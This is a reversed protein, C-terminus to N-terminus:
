TLTKTLWVAIALVIIIAIFRLTTANSKIAERVAEWM